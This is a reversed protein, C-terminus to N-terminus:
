LNSFSFHTDGYLKGTHLEVVEMYKMEYGIRGLYMPKQVAIVKQPQM